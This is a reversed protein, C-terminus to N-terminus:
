VKSIDESGLRFDHPDYLGTKFLQGDPRTSELDLIVKVEVAFNNTEKNLGKFKDESM